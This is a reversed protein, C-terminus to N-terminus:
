FNIIQAHWHLVSTALTSFILSEYNHKSAQKIFVIMYVPDYLVHAVINQKVGILIKTM